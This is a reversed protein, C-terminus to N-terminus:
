RLGFMKNTNNNKPLPLIYCVFSPVMGRDIEELVISVYIDGTEWQLCDNDTDGLGHCSCGELCWKQAGTFITQIGM